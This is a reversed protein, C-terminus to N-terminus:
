LYIKNIKNQNLAWHKKNKKKKYYVKKMIIYFFEESSLYQTLCEAFFLLNYNISRGWLGSTIKLGFKMINDPQKDIWYIGATKILFLSILGGVSTNVLPNREIAWSTIVLKTSLSDTAATLVALKAPNSFIEESSITSNNQACGSAFLCVVVISFMKKLM